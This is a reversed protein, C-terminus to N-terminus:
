SRTSRPARASTSAARRSMWSSSARTDCCTARSWRRRSTAARSRGPRTAGAGAARVGVEAAASEVAARERASRCCRRGVRLCRRFVRDDHQREDDHASVPRAAQPGRHSVRRRRRDGRGAVPLAREPVTSSQGHRNVADRRRDRTRGVDARCRSTRRTRRDGGRRISFSVDFAAAAPRSAARGGHASRAPCVITRPPFEESLERGVMAEFSRRRPGAGATATQLVRRGDRLVTIRDALAFVEDFRHSIFVIGLGRERVRRVVMLLRDVERGSLSATPEDLILVRADGALARAIEVMQQHAVSLSRSPRTPRCMWASNAFCANPRVACRRVRLGPRGANAASFSTTPLQSSLFSRSNKTSSASAARAPRASASRRDTLLAGDDLTVVQGADPRVAGGLIKILTSKGAGNKASSRM